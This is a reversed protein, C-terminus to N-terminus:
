QPRKLGLEIPKILRANLEALRQMPLFHHVGSAQIGESAILNFLTTFDRAVTGPGEDNITQQKLITQEHKSLSM